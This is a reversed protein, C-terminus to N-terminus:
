LVARTFPNVGDQLGGPAQVPPQRGAMGLDAIGLWEDQRSTFLTLEVVTFLAALSFTLLLTKPTSLWQLLPLLTGGEDM